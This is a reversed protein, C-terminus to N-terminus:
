QEKNQLSPQQKGHFLTQRVLAGKLAAKKAQNTARPLIRVM